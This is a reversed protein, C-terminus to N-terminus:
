REVKITIEEAYDDWAKQISDPGYDCSRTWQIAKLMKKFNQSHTHNDIVRLSSEIKDAKLRLLEAVHERNEFDIEDDRTERCDEEVYDALSRLKDVTHWTAMDETNNYCIQEEISPGSM